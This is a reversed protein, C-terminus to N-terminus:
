GAALMVNSPVRAGIMGSAFLAFTYSVLYATDAVALDELSFNM